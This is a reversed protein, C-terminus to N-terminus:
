RGERVSIIEKIDWYESKVHRRAEDASNAECWVHCIDHDSSSIYDVYFTKM